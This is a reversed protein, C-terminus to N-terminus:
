REDGAIQHEFMWTYLEPLAYASSWSNHGVHELITFRIKEGGATRIAKVMDASEAIPVSEDQDGHFVWIPLGKLKEADDPDARGCVPVVAAFREPHRAALAWSGSGGMSLGTLYMKSRDVNWTKCVNELLQLLQTQRTEDDWSGDDPCQPSVLIYPLDDGRQAFRPPGWKAVVSLPGNSEGSGHLFLILPWRQDSDPQYDRPLYLLYSLQKSADDAPREVQKGPTADGSSRVNPGAQQASATALSISFTLLLCTTLRM